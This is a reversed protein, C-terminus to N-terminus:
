RNEKWQKYEMEAWIFIVLGELSMLVVDERSTGSLLMYSCYIAMLRVFLKISKLIFEM